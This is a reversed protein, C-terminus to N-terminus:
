DKLDSTEYIRGFSGQNLKQKIEFRENIVINQAVKQLKSENVKKITSRPRSKSKRVMNKPSLLHGGVINKDTRHPGLDNM